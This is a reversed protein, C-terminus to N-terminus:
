EKQLEELRRKVAILAKNADNLPLTVQEMPCMGDGTRNQITDVITDYQVEVSQSEFWTLAGRSIVKAYCGKIGGLTLIMAAAKGIIKDVIYADKLVGSEYLELIPAVGRGYQTKIITNNKLVVCTATDEALLYKASQISQQRRGYISRKVLLVVSPVLLLQIVIGPVGTAIASWVTLAKLKGSIFLLVQFVLGYAVRGCIMAILMAPYIGWTKKKWKSYLFGSVTGYTLLEFAMIPMMPYFTPMGTLVANLIPLIFGCAMGYIPGCLFGCIFVPIHMPLLVTGPIGMGHATAFPLIIGVALLMGTVTIKENRTQLM